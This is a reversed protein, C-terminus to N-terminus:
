IRYLEKRKHELSPLEQQIRDLYEFDLDATIVGVSDSAKAIVNGWPDVVMSRGYSPVSNPKDGIQGPAIVYSQTEIARARLLSEWHDKGTHKTFAAPLIIVDAGEGALSSFLEPFRLDYCIALGATAFGTDFTVINEGPVVRASEQTVVEDGIEVDFLHIKRYQARQEGDPDFVVTTNHVKGDEKAIEFMSGGHVWMSHDSAKQSLKETVSGPIEEAATRYGEKDGMFTFMEPLAAMDAGTEAAKDLLSLATEVNAQKDNKSDMQCVAIRPKAM